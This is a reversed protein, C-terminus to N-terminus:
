RRREVIYASLDRLMDAEPGFDSLLELARGHLRQAQQEAQPLGLMTAYTPKDRARDAGPTKGIIEAEGQEDLIDDRIQFALGICDAYATLLDLRAPPLEHPCALTGLRVSVSILAGTKMRHMTELEDLTLRRGMAALDIAQGGAMGHTGSAGALEAIMQVRTANDVDLAEDRAMIEFALVQLADGVLVATAEDFARHCTPRGRRLDDDDMAPLDDHVLSYSHILEVACALGDLASEAVGNARGAAYVLIPRLRKGEGLTMYRMAEHLRQPEITAKPLWHDLARDVRQRFHSLLDPLGTM